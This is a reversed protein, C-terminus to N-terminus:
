EMIGALADLVNSARYAVSQRASKSDRLTQADLACLERNVRDRMATLQADDAFNLAQVSDAVERLNDLWSSCFRRREGDERDDFSELREKLTRVADELRRWIEYTANGQIETVRATLEREIEDRTESEVEAFIGSPDPVPYTYIEIGWIESLESRRPYKSEDFLGNLRQRADAIAEDWRMDLDIVASELAVKADEQHALYRDKNALPLLRAGSIEFPLTDAIHASYAQSLAKNIGGLYRKNILKDSWSGADTAGHAQEVEATTQRNKRRFGTSRRVQRVLLCKRALVSPGNSTNEHSM